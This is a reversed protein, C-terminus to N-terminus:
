ASIFLWNEISMVFSGFCPCIHIWHTVVLKLSQLAQQAV